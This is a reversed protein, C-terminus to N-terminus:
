GVTGQSRREAPGHVSSRPRADRRDLQRRAVDTLTEVSFPKQLFVESRLAEPLREQETYGSMFIVPLSPRLRRVEDALVLGNMQPMVVDTILLDIRPEVRDVWDLAERPSSAVHVEYGAKQLVRQVLRRVSAEDEVLLITEVGPNTIGRARSSASLEEAAEVSPLYVTFTSGVGMRSDVRVFGGSQEVIGHVTALGLGTGKGFPKTTFFPEFIRDKVAPPIGGGKDEISVTVYSAPPLGLRDSEAISVNRARLWIEGGDPMADRANVILNLIVQQLQTPDISVSSLDSALDIKLELDEGILRRIMNNSEELARGPNLVRPKLVQQRSFALLQHTLDAAREGCRHIDDVLELLDTKGELELELLHCAGIIGTVLNNFDHAIGGALRGVAEMKQSHMLRAELRKRDTIDTVLAQAGLLTGDDDVYPKVSVVTQLATGDKKRLELEFLQGRDGPKQRVLAVVKARQRRSLFHEIPRDVMDDASYGLLTAMQGNVYRTRGDADMTWIGENMEDVISRYKRESQRLQVQRYQGVALLAAIAFSLLLGLAVTGRDAYSTLAAVRARSPVVRITWRRDAVTIRRVETYSSVTQDLPVGVQGLPTGEDEFVYAMDTPLGEALAIRLVDGTRFAVSIIGSPHGAGDGVRLYGTFGQGGQLLRGPPTLVLQEANEARLVAAADLPRDDLDFGLASGNGARPSIWEVVRSANVWSVAQIGPYRAQWALTKRQFEALSVVEKERWQDRLWYLMEFRTNLFARIRLSAQDAVTQLEGEFRAQRGDAVARGAILVATSLVLLAVM